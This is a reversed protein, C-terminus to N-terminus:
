NSSVVDGFGVGTGPLYRLGRNTYNLIDPYGDGNIDMLTRSQGSSGSSAGVSLIGLVGM